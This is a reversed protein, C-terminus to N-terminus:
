NQPTLPGGTPSLNLMPIGKAMVRKAVTKGNADYAYIADPLDAITLPFVVYPIGGQVKITPYTVAHDKFELCLHDWNKPVTGYKVAIPGMITYTLADLFEAPDPNGLGPDPYVVDQFGDAIGPGNDLRAAPRHSYGEASQPPIIDPHAKAWTLGDGIYYFRQVWAKGATTGSALTVWTQEPTDVTRNQNPLAASCANPNVPTTASTPAPSKTGPKAAGASTAPHSSANAGNGTLSVAGAAIGLVALTTGAGTARHRVRRRRAGAIISHASPPREAGGGRLLGSIRDEFEDM